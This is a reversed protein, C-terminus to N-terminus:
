GLEVERPSLGLGDRAILALVDSHIWRVTQRSGAEPALGIRRALWSTQGSIRGRRDRKLKGCRIAIESLSLGGHEVAALVAERLGRNLVIPSRQLRCLEGRLVGGASAGGRRQGALAAASLACIPEYSEFRAVLERLALARWPGHHRRAECWRLQPAQSRRDAVPAIRYLRGDRRLPERAAPTDGPEGTPPSALDASSLARCRGRRPDALYLRSVLVANGAPEDADLHAVLRRDGLTAADRDVVLVSGAPGERAVLERRRGRCDIYRGLV